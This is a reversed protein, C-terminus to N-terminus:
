QCNSTEAVVNSPSEGGLNFAAVTYKYSGPAPAIDAYTTSNSPLDTLKAGDRYIRYGDEANARDKWTLTISVIGATCDYLYRLDGPASLSGSSASTNGVKTPVGVNLVNDGQANVMSFSSQYEGPATPATMQITITLSEGSDVTFGFPMIAFTDALTLREGDNFIMKYRDDWVCTGTNQVIWSMSFAKGPAIGKDVEKKDFPVGDRTWATIQFSEECAAPEATTGDIAVGPLPSAIPTAQTAAPSALPTSSEGAPTLVAEVTLAAATSLSGPDPAPVGLNCASLTLSLSFVFLACAKRKM